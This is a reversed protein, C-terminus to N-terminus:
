KPKILKFAQQANLRKLPKFKKGELENYNIFFTELQNIVDRPIDKIEKVHAFMQSAEPVSIFRDNRITKGKETQEATIGGIIRCDMICGPFSQFESIIIIDLPDGDEGLTHPIFGFDFPFVMGAPLEKKLKFLGTADDYDYKVASGRPTEVIVDVTKM